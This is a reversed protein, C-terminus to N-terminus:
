SGTPVTRWYGILEPGAKIALTVYACSGAAQWPFSQLVDHREVSLCVKREYAVVGLSCLRHWHSDRSACSMYMYMM